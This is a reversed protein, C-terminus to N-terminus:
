NAPDPLPEPEAAQMNLSLLGGDGPDSTRVSVPLLVRGTDTDIHILASDGSEVSILLYDLDLPELFAGAVEHFLQTDTPLPEGADWVTVENQSSEKSSEQLPAPASDAAEPASLVPSNEAGGRLEIGLLGGTEDDVIYRGTVGSGPWSVSVDWVVMSEGEGGVILRASAASSQGPGLYLGMDQQSKVASDVAQDETMVRGGKLPVATASSDGALRLKRAADLTSLLSLEVQDAAVTETSRTLALDRLALVAGPLLASVLCMLAAACLTLVTKRKM